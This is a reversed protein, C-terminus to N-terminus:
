SNPRSSIPVRKNENYLSSSTRESIPHTLSQLITVLVLLYVMIDPRTNGM